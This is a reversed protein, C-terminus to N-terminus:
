CIIGSTSASHQGSTQDGSSLLSPDSGKDTPTLMVTCIVDARDRIRIRPFPGNLANSTSDCSAPGTM